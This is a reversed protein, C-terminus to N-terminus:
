NPASSAPSLGREGWSWPAGGVKCVERFEGEVTGADDDSPPPGDDMGEAGPAGPGPGANQSYIVEGLRQLVLM